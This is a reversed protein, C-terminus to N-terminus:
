RTLFNNWLSFAVPMMGKEQMIVDLHTLGISLIDLNMPPSDEYLRLSILYRNCNRCVFAKEDREDEVFFFEAEEPSEHECATCKAWPFQWKHGCTGCYLCPRGKGYSISLLPLSGCVPCYGKNWPISSLREKLQERWKNLVIMRIADNFLRMLHPVEDCGDTHPPATHQPHIALLQSANMHGNMVQTALANMDKQTVSFGQAVARMLLRALEEFIDQNLKPPTQQILPIGDSFSTIKLSFPPETENFLNGAMVQQKLSLIPYFADLLPKVHPKNATMWTIAENLTGIESDMKM